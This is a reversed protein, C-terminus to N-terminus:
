ILEYLTDFGIGSCWDCISGELDDSDIHHTLTPQTGERSAIAALCHDCVHLNKRKKVFRLFNSEYVQTIYDDGWEEEQLDTGFCHMGKPNTESSWDEHYEISDIKLIHTSYDHSYDDEVVVIDGVEIDLFNKKINEDDEFSVDSRYLIYPVSCVEEDLFDQEDDSLNKSKLDEYITVDIQENGYIGIIKGNEMEIIIKSM